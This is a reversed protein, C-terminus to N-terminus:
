QLVLSYSLLESEDGGTVEEEEYTYAAENEDEEVEFRGYEKTEVLNITGIKTCQNSRHRPQRCRYCKNFRLRANPNHPAVEPLITNAPNIPGRSSGTKHTTNSLFPQTM